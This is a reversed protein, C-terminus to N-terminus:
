FEQVKNAFYSANFLRLKIGKTQNCRCKLAWHRVWSLSVFLILALATPIIAVLMLSSSCFFVFCCKM